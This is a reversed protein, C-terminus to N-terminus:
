RVLQGGDHGALLIHRERWFWDITKELGIELPTMALDPLLGRFKGVALCKSRAGVFQSRDFRVARFDYGVRDCIVRAFHRISLGEGSGVNVIDNDVTGALRAMIDVFDEVFVVERRQDGDGWLVVPEGHLRGRMVKRILDFIFHMNRGDTHYNAGYLTSPVLYLYRFGFQRSLSVLGAYLMRKSMAYAYYRDGPIGLMYKDESLDREVTYSVSTGLAVLKAQPQHRRWWALVNTNIAQNVIWQEGGRARGFEGARTWAALHYILDYRPHPHEELSGQTTLDCMQSSLGVVSHGQAALYSCLHRGIFGSGGTVLAHV